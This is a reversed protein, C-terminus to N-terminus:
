TPHLYRFMWSCVFFPCMLELFKLHRHLASWTRTSYEGLVWTMPFRGFVGTFSSLFNLFIYRSSRPWEETWSVFFFPVPRVGLFKFSFPVGYSFFHHFEEFFSPCGTNQPLLANFRPIRFLLPIHVMWKLASEEILSNTTCLESLLGAWYRRLLPSNTYLTLEISEPEFSNVKSLDTAFSFSCSSLFAQTALLSNKPVFELSSHPATPFRKRSHRLFFSSKSFSTWNVLTQSPAVNTLLTEKSHVVLSNM